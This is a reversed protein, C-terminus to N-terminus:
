KEGWVKEPLVGFPLHGKAPVPNKAVRIGWWRGAWIGEDMPLGDVFGFPNGIAFFSRCSWLVAESFVQRNPTAMRRVQDLLLLICSFLRSTSKSELCWMVWSRAFIVWRKGWRSFFTGERGRRDDEGAERCRPQWVPRVDGRLVGVVVLTTDNKKAVSCM